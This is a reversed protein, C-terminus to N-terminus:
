AMELIETSRIRYGSSAACSSSGDSQAILLIVMQLRVRSNIEAFRDLKHILLYMGKMIRVACMRLARCAKMIFHAHLRLNEKNRRVTKDSRLISRLNPLSKFTITYGISKTIKRIKEEIGPYYPICIPRSMTERENKTRIDQNKHKKLREKITTEIFNKPSNNQQVTSRIHNIEKELFEDDRVSIARDVMGTIIGKKVNM